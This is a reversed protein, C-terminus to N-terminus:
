INNRKLSAEYAEDVVPEIRSLDGGGDIFLKRVLAFTNDWYHVAKGDMMHKLAWVYLVSESDNKAFPFCDKILKCDETHNACYQADPCSGNSSRAIEKKVKKLETVNVNGM